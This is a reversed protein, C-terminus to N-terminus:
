DVAPPRTARPSNLKSFVIVFFRPFLLPLLAPATPQRTLGLFILPEESYGQEGRPSENRDGTVDTDPPPRQRSRSKGRRTMKEADFFSTAPRDGPRGRRRVRFISRTGSRLLRGVPM